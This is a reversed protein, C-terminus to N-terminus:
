DNTAIMTAKSPFVFYKLAIFLYIAVVIVASAQVYQHPYGSLDTFYYLMTFNILYGIIQAFIYRVLSLTYDGEHSFTFRKNGWFGITAGFTYLVTITIKPGIGFWTVILYLLYGCLNTVIGVVAFRIFLIM